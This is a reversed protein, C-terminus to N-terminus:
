WYVPMWVPSPQWTAAPPQCFPLAAAEVLLRLGGPPARLGSRARDGGGGALLRQECADLFPGADTPFDRQAGTPLTLREVEVWNRDDDQASVRVEGNAAALELYPAETDYSLPTRPGLSPLAAARLLHPEDAQWMVLDGDVAHDKGFSLRDIAGDPLRVSWVYTGGREHSILVVRDGFWELYSVFCGEYGWDLTDTLALGMEIMPAPPAAVFLSAIEDRMEIWAVRGGPDIAGRKAEVPRPPVGARALGARIEAVTSPM